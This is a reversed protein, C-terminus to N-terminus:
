TVLFIIEAMLDDQGGPSEERDLRSLLFDEMAAAGERVRASPVTGM